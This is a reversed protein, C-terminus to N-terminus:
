ARELVVIFRPSDDEILRRVRWGSGAVLRDVEQPSLMLYRFWPTAYTRYRVRFRRATKTRFVPDARSPDVSDTLLRGREGTMTALRRLVGGARTATGVLGFNNRLLLVTDFTGLSADVAELPRLRTQKVGRRRAVELALPSNDTAVVEHGREQLHLAIRGAGCGIDLVRGRVFRMAKKEASPWRRYPAFYEAPNGCYILGDDREMVEDSERGELYALLLQGYADQADGLATVARSNLLEKRFSASLRRARAPRRASADETV